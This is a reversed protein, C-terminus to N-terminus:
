TNDFESAHYAIRWPTEGGHAVTIRFREPCESPRLHLAIETVTMGKPLNRQLSHVILDEFFCISRDLLMDVMVTVSDSGINPESVEVTGNVVSYKVKPFTWIEHELDNRLLVLRETWHQCQALYDALPPYTERLRCLGTEFASAKKFLFGIEVGLFSCLGQM